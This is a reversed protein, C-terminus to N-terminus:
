AASQWLFTKPRSCGRRPLPVKICAATLIPSAGSGGAAVCFYRQAIAAAISATSTQRM